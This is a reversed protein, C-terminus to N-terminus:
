VGVYQNTHYIGLEIEGEDVTYSFENAGVVMKPWGSNEMVTNIVNYEVGDRILTARKNGEATTVLLVDGPEMDLYFGIYERTTLNYIRPQLSRLTAKLEFTVGADVTGENLITTGATTDKTSLEVGEAPISFPFEFLPEVHSANTYTEAVDRWYPWPCLISAAVNQGQTWPDVEATEVYGESYVDLGEAAYYVKIYQKPALWNYLNLRARAIDRTLEVTLLLNRAGVTSSNFQVGDATGAKSSNITAVVPGVGTLVPEYRPDASLDLVEGRANEIKVIPVM